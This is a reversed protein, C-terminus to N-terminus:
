DYLGFVAYINMVNASSAVCLFHEFLDESLPIEPWYGHLAQHDM